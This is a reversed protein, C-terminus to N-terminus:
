RVSMFVLKKKCVRIRKINNKHYKAYNKVGGGRVFFFSYNRAVYIRKSGKRTAAIRSRDPHTIRRRYM